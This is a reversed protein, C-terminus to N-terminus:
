INLILEQISKGIANEGDLSLHHIDTVGSKTKAWGYEDLFPATDFYICGSALCAEDLLNHIRDRLFNPNNDSRLHGLVVVAARPIEEKIKKLQGIVDDLKSEFKRVGLEPLFKEYYGNKGLDAYAVNECINPNTHLAYGDPHLNVGISSVEMVLVDIEELDLTPAYDSGSRISLELNEDFENLPTTARPEVRFIYARLEKPISDPRKFFQIVQLIEAATHFYGIKPFVVQINEDVNNFVERGVRKVFPRHLRSTGFLLVRM